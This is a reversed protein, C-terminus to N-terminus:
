HLHLLPRLLALLLVLLLLVLVLLLLLLNCAPLLAKVVESHRRDRVATAEVHSPSWVSSVRFLVGYRCGSLGWIKDYM